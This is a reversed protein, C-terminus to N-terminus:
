IKHASQRVPTSTCAYYIITLFSTNVTLHGRSIKPFLHYYRTLPALYLCLQLPLSIPITHPRNFPVLALTKSHGELDRKSISVKRVGMGRSVYCSSVLISRRATGRLLNAPFFTVDGYHGIKHRTHRLVKVWYWSL